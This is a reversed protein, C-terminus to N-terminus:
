TYPIDSVPIQQLFRKTIMLTAYKMVVFYNKKLIHKASRVVENSVMSLQSVM